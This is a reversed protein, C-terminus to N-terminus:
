KSALKKGEATLRYLKTGDEHDIRELLKKAKLTSIVSMGVGCATWVKERKSAKAETTDDNKALYDIM